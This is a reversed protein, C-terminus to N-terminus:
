NGLITLSSLGDAFPRYCSILSIINCRPYNSILQNLANIVGVTVVAPTRLVTCRKGLKRVCPSRTGPCVGQFALPPARRNTSILSLIPAARENAPAGNKIDVEVAHQISLMDDDSRESTGSM